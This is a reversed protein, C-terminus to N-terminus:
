VCVCSVVDVLWCEGHKSGGADQGYRAGSSAAAEEVGRRRGKHFNAISQWIDFEDFARGAVLDIECLFQCAFAENNTHTV